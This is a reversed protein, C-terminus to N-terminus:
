FLGFSLFFFFSFFSFAISFLSFFGSCGRICFKTFFLSM